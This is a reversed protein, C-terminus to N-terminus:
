LTLQMVVHPGLGPPTFEEGLTSMGMSEYFWLASVRANCWYRKGGKERAHAVTAFWLARGVGQGRVRDVTAM